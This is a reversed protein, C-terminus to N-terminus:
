RVDIKEGIVVQGGAERAALVDSDLSGTEVPAVGSDWMVLVSQYRGMADLTLEAAIGNDSPQCPPEDTCSFVLKDDRYLRLTALNRGDVISTLRLRDGPKASTGRYVIDSDFLEHSLTGSPARAPTLLLAAVVASAALAVGGMLWRPSKAVPAQEINQLVRQQWDASPALHQDTRGIADKLRDYQARAELCDACEGFHKDLPEGRELLLLGESEFRTCPSM